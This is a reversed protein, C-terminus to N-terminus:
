APPIPPIDYREFHGNGCTIYVYDEPASEFDLGIIVDPKYPVFLPCDKHPCKLQVEKSEREVM